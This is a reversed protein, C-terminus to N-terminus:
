NKVLHGKKFPIAKEQEKKQKPKHLKHPPFYVVNHSYNPTLPHSLLPLLLM